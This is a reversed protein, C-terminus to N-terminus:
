MQRLAEWRDSIFRRSVKCAIKNVSEAKLQSSFGGRGISRALSKIEIIHYV